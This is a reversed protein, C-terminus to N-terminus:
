KEAAGRGGKGSVGGAACKGGQGGKGGGTVASDANRQERAAMIRIKFQAEWKKREAHLSIAMRSRSRARGSTVTTPRSPRRNNACPASRCTLPLAIRMGQLVHVTPQHVNQM